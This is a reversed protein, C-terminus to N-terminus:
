TQNLLCLNDRGPGLMPVGTARKARIKWMSHDIIQQAFSIEPKVSMSRM